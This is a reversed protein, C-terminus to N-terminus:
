KSVKAPSHFRAKLLWFMAIFGDRAKIKKGELIGRPNYSIPIEHIRFGARMAKGTFEPCFEFQRCELSFADLVERRFVKYCTAEDTIRQGFLITATWSLIRNAILNALKMGKPYGKAFRSGYVVSVKPDEFPALLAPYDRPDYELDGDQVIIIDGTAIKFGARLAAGKGHNIMSRHLVFFEKWHPNEDGFEQVAELTQDTSGDDVVVIEREVGDPLPARCVRRLLESIAPAENYVPIVVSLKVPNERNVFM